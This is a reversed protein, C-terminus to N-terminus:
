QMAGHLVSMRSKGSKTEASWDLGEKFKVSHTGNFRNILYTEVVSKDVMEKQENDNRGVPLFWVVTHKNEMVGRPFGYSINWM